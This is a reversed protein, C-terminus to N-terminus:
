LSEGEEDKQCFNRTIQKQAVTTSYRPCVFKKCLDRKVSFKNDSGRCQHCRGRKVGAAIPNNKHLSCMGTSEIASCTAKAFGRGDLIIKNARRLINENALTLGLEEM